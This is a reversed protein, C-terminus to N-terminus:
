VTSQGTLKVTFTQSYHKSFYTMSCQYTGEHRGREAKGTSLKSHFGDNTLTLGSEELDVSSGNVTWTVASVQPNAWIDCALVLQAEEEVTVDAPDSLQPPVSPFM